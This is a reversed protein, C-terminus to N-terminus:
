SRRDRCGREPIPIPAINHTHLPPYFFLTYSHKVHQSFFLGGEYFFERQGTVCRLGRDDPRYTVPRHGNARLGPEATAVAYFHLWGNRACDFDM